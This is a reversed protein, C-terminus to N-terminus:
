QSGEMDFTAASLGMTALQDSMAASINILQLTHDASAWSKAASVLTEAALGGIHSVNACDLTLDTGTQKRLEHGLAEAAAHDLRAKLSVVAIMGKPDAM